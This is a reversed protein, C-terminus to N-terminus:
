WKELLDARSTTFRNVANILRTADDKLEYNVLIPFDSIRTPNPHDESPTSAHANMMETSVHPDKEAVHTVKGIVHGCEHPMVGPLKTNQDLWPAECLISDAVQQADTDPTWLYYPLPTSFAL